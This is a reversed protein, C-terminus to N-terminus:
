PRSLTFSGPPSHTRVPSDCLSSFSNSNMDRTFQDIVMSRRTLHSQTLALHRATKFEDKLIVQDQLKTQKEAVEQQDDADDEIKLEGIDSERGDYM